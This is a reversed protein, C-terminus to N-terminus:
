DIMSLKCRDHLRADVQSDIWASEKGKQGGQRDPGRRRESEEGKQGRAKRVGQGESEKGKQGGHRESEHGQHGRAWPRRVNGM